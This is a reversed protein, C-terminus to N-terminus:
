ESREDVLAGLVRSGVRAPERAGFFMPLRDVTSQFRIAKQDAERFSKLKTEGDVGNADAPERPDTLPYHAGRVVGYVTFVHSKTTLWNDDLAVLNAVAHEFSAAPFPTYSMTADLPAMTAEADFRNTLDPHSEDYHGAGPHRVNCLEGVTLFGYGYRPRYNATTWSGLPSRDTAYNGPNDGPEWPDRAERYAVIARALTEGLTLRGSGLVAVLENRYGEPLLDGDIMPVGSLVRWSATNLNLRGHVRLGGQDVRPYQRNYPAQTFALVPNTFPNGGGIEYPVATFYDYILQGWPLTDLGEVQGQTASAPFVRERPNIDVDPRVDFVPLRGNDIQDYQGVLNREREVGGATEFKGLLYPSVRNFPSIVSQDEPAAGSDIPTEDYIHAMRSLLLLSGTTPFAFTFTASNLRAVDIHVPYTEKDDVADNPHGLTQKNAGFLKMARPVTFRWFNATTDRQLAVETPQAPDFYGIDIASGQPPAGPERRVSADTDSCNMADVVIEVDRNALDKVKRKLAIISDKAIAYAGLDEGNEPCNVGYGCLVIYGGAPISKNAPLDVSFRPLPSYSNEDLLETDPDSARDEARLDVLRYDSLPIDENYPNYLEVAFRSDGRAVIDAGTSATPAPAVKTYIETIFPQREFGYAILQEGSAGNVPLGNTDVVGVATLTAGSGDNDVYDILNATLMAAQIANARDVARRDDMTLTGDIDFDYLPRQLLMLLFTDRVSQIVRPLGFEKLMADLGPLSLKLRGLRPDGTGDLKPPYNDMAFRDAAGGRGYPKNQNTPDENAFLWSRLDTGTYPNMWGRMLLDDHSVSTVNHSVDYTGASANDPNMLTRWAADPATDAVPDYRWWRRMTPNTLTTSNPGTSFASAQGPLTQPALLDNWLNDMLRTSQMNLPLMVGRNRLFWENSEPLYPVGAFLDANSTQGHEIANYGLAVRRLYTHSDNLNAMSGHDIIRLTLTLQDASGPPYDSARLRGALERYLNAPLMSAPIPMEVGDLVGDGDADNYPLWTPNGSVPDILPFGGTSYGFANIKAYPDSPRIQQRDKYFQASQALRPTIPARDALAALLNTTVRFESNVKGLSDQAELPEAVDVWAHVGPQEGYTPLSLVCDPLVCGPDSPPCQVCPVNPQGPLHMVLTSDPTYPIGDADLFGERLKTWVPEELAEVMERNNREIRAADISRSSFTVVSLLAAGAVFLIALVAVVM